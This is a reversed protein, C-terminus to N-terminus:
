SPQRTFNFDLAFLQYSFPLGISQYWKQGGKFRVPCDRSAALFKNIGYLLLLGTSFIVFLKRVMEEGIATSGYFKLSTGDDHGQGRPLSPV